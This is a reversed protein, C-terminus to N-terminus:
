PPSASVLSSCDFSLLAAKLYSGPEKKLFMCLGKKLVLVGLIHSFWKIFCEENRSPPDDFGTRPGRFVLKSLCHLSAEVRIRIRPGM